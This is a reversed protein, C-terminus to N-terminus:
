DNDIIKPVKLYGNKQDPLAETFDRALTGGGTDARFINVLDTSGTVPEVGRPDVKQLEEVHNLIDNLDKQYQRVEEENLRINALKAYRKVDFDM